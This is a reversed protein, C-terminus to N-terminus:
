VSSTPMTVAFIKPIKARTQETAASASWFSLGRFAAVTTPSGVLFSGKGKCSLAVSTDVYKCESSRYGDLGAVPGLM